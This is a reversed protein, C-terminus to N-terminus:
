EEQILYGIGVAGIIIGIALYGYRTLYTELNEPLLRQLLMYLGVLCLAASSFQLRQERWIKIAAILLLGAGVGMQWGLSANGLIDGLGAGIFLAAVFLLGTGRKSGRPKPDM